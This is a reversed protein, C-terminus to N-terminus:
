TYFISDRIFFSFFCAMCLFYTIQLFYKWGNLALLMLIVVQIIDNIFNTINPYSIRVSIIVSIVIIVRQMLFDTTTSELDVIEGVMIPSATKHRDGPATTIVLDTFIDLQATEPFYHFFSDSKNNNYTWISHHDTYHGTKKEELNCTWRLGGNFFQKNPAGRKSAAAAASSKLDYKWFKHHDYFYM